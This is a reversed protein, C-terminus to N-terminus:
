LWVDAGGGTAVCVAGSDSGTELAQRGVMPHPFGIDCTLRFTDAPYFRQDAQRQGRGFDAPPDASIAAAASTSSARRRPDPSLRCGAAM